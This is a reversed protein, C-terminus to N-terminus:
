LSKYALTTRRQGVEDQNTMNLGSELGQAWRSLRQIRVDRCGLSLTREKGEQFTHPSGPVSERRHSSSGPRSIRCHLRLGQLVRLLPMIKLPILTVAGPLKTLHGQCGKPFGPKPLQLRKLLSNSILTYASLMGSKEQMQTYFQGKQFPM